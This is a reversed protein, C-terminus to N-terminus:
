ENIKSLQVFSPLKSVLLLRTHSTCASNDLMFIESIFYKESYNKTKQREPEALEITSDKHVFVEQRETIDVSLDM